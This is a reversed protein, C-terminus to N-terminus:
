VVGLFDITEQAINLKSPRIKINGEKLKKLVMEIKQLHDEMSGNTALMIDDAYHIVDLAMDGFLKDM